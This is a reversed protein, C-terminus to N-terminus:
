TTRPGERRACSICLRATPLAALREENIAEGCRECRGYELKTLRLLAADIDALHNQTRALLALSQAREFAVTSGEPDHEDDINSGASADAIAELDTNM